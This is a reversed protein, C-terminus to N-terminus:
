IWGEKQITFAPFGATELAQKVAEERGPAFAIICGGGGAGTVKAGYAGASCAVEVMRDLEPCSLGLDSLAKHCTNMARGLAQRDRTRIAEVGSFLAETMALFARNVLAPDEERLRRVWAVKEATSRKVLSDAVVLPPPDLHLRHIQTDLQEAFPLRDAGGKHFLCLGGYTATADDLGSPNGHFVRELAHATNRVCTLDLDMGRVHALAKVLLVSLAASSGLGAGMPIYSAVELDMGGSGPLLSELLRLAEAIKSDDGDDCVLGWAPVHVKVGGPRATVRTACLADEIAMALAPHGYVVSHEGFLIAKGHATLPKM